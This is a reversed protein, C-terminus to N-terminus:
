KLYIFTRLKTNDWGEISDYLSTLAQLYVDTISQGYSQQFAIAHFHSGNKDIIQKTIRSYPLSLYNQGKMFVETPCFDFGQEAKSSKEEANKTREFFIDFM